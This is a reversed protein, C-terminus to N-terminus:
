WTVSRIWSQPIENWGNLDLSEYIGLSIDHAMPNENWSPHYEVGPDHGFTLPNRADNLLPDRGPKFEILNPLSDFDHDASPDFLQHPIDAGTVSDSHVKSIWQDYSNTSDSFIGNLLATTKNIRLQIQGRIRWNLYQVVRYASLIKQAMMEGSVPDYFGVEVGRTTSDWGM